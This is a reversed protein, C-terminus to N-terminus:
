DDKGPKRAPATNRDRECLIGIDPAHITDTCDDQEGLRIGFRCKEAIPRRRQRDDIPGTADADNENEELSLSSPQPRAPALPPAEFIKPETEAGDSDKAATITKELHVSRRVACVDEVGAALDGQLDSMDADTNKRDGRLRM